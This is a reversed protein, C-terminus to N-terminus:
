LAKLRVCGFKGLETFLAPEPNIRVRGDPGAIQGLLQQVEGPTINIIATM